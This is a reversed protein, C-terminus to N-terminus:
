VVKIEHTEISSTVAESLSQFLSQVIGILPNRLKLYTLRKTKTKDRSSRRLAQTDSEIEKTDDM